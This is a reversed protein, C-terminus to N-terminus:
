AADESPSERTLEFVQFDTVVVVEHGAPSLGLYTPYAGDGNGASFVILNLDSEGSPLIHAWSWTPVYTKRMESIITLFYEPDTECRAELGIRTSEDM